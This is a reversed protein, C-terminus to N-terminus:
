SYQLRSSALPQCTGTISNASVGSALAQLACLSVCLYVCVYVCLICVSICDRHCHTLAAAIAIRACCEEESVEALLLAACPYCNCEEESVEALRQVDDHGIAALADDLAAPRSCAFAM